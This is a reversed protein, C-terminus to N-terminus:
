AERRFSIVNYVTYTEKQGLLAGLCGPSNSVTMEDVRYFEWGDAANQDVVSQLYGEAIGASSQAGKTALNKPAQVM